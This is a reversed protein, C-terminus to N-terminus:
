GPHQFPSIINVHVFLVVPYKFFCIIVPYKHRHLHLWPWFLILWIITALDRTREKMWECRARSFNFCYGLTKVQSFPVVGDGWIPSLSKLVSGQSPMWLPTICQLAIIFVHTQKHTYSCYKPAKLSLHLLWNFLFLRHVTQCLGQIPQFPQTGVQM